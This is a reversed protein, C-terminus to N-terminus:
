APKVAALASALQTRLVELGPASGSAANLAELAALAEAAAPRELLLVARGALDHDLRELARKAMNAQGFSYAHHSAKGLLKLEAELWHHYDSLM